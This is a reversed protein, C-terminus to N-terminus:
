NVNAKHGDVRVFIHASGDMLKVEKNKRKVKENTRLKEEHL